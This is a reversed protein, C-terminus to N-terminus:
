KLVQDVLESIVVRVEERLKADNVEQLYRGAFGEVLLRRAESFGLGRSQLYFVDAPDLHGVTAAHRAQVADHKIELIPRSTVGAQNSLLLSHHAFGADASGAGPAIVLDGEVRSYMRGGLVSQVWVRGRSGGKLHNLRILVSSRGARGINFGLVKVEAAQGLLDFQLFSEQGEGEGTFYVYVLDVGAEVTFVERAPLQRRVLVQSDKILM